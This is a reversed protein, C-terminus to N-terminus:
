ILISFNEIVKNSITYWDSMFKIEFEQAAWDMYKRQNRLDTWYNQPCKDFKWPLWEFEPYVGSLLKFLSKSHMQM